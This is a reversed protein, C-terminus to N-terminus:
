MKCGRTFDFFIDMFSFVVIYSFFQNLLETGFSVDSFLNIM